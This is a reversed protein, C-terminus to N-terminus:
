SFQMRSLSLVSSAGVPLLVELIVCILGHIGKLPVKIAREAALSVSATAKGLEAGTAQDILTVILTIKGGDLSGFAISCNDQGHIDVDFFTATGIGHSPNTLAVALENELRNLSLNATSARLQQLHASANKLDIAGALIARMDIVPRESISRVATELLEEISVDIKSATAIQVAEDARGLAAAFRALEAVGTGTQPAKRLPHSEPLTEGAYALEPAAARRFGFSSATLWAASGHFLHPKISLAEAHLLSSRYSHRAQRSIMSPATRVTGVEPILRVPLNAVLLRHFLLQGVDQAPTITGTTPDLFDTAGLHEGLVSGAIAWASSTIPMGLGGAAPLDGAPLEDILPPELANRRIASACSTGVAEELAIIKRAQTVFPVILEDYIDTVFISPDVKRTAQLFRPLSEPTVFTFECGHQQGIVQFANELLSRLPEGRASLLAFEGMKGFLEMQKQLRNIMDGLAVTPDDLFLFTSNSYKAQPPKRKREAPKALLQARATPDALLQGWAKWTALNEKADFRPWATAAGKELVETLRECLALANPECMVSPWCDKHVLEDAGSGSTAVFPIQLQMCEYVVCPSNDALSPMVAVRGPNSLYALAQEQSYDLLLNVKCPWKEARNMIFVPSPYGYVDSARGMFTVTRGRLAEGMRDLAECFLWLGKRTELRGFFVLEEVPRRERASRKISIPFAYPQRYTHSPLSWGYSQYERLLYQSPGIVVDAWEVSRREVGIMELDTAKNLRQDNTNFVWEISGHTIVCHVRDKFPALGARKAALAYYGSGHHENFYVVDFDKEALYQKVLWSKRLWDRYSGQHPIHTLTIKRAALAEVWHGWHREACEPEGSQVLTYLITVQHGNSALNDILASTATGIGGNKVPGLIESTVVCVKLSQKGSAKAIGPLPKFGTTEAKTQAATRKEVRGSRRGTGSPM